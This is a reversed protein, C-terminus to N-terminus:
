LQAGPTTAGSVTMDRLAHTFETDSVDTIASFIFTM